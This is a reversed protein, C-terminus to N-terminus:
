FPLYSWDDRFVDRPYTVLLTKVKALCYKLGGDRTLEIVFALCSSPFVDRM